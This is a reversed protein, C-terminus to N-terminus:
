FYTYVLYVHKYHCKVNIYIHESDILCLNTRSHSHELDCDKTSSDTSVFCAYFDGVKARTWKPCLKWKVSSFYGFMSYSSSSPALNSETTSKNSGHFIPKSKPSPDSWDLQPILSERPFSVDCSPFAEICYTSCLVGQNPSGASYPRRCRLFRWWPGRSYLFRFWPGRSYLFRCWPSRSYLFRCLPSRSYLFRCWPSRSYLAQM